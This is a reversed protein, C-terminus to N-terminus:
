PNGTGNQGTNNSGHQLAARISKVLDGIQAPKTLFGFAGAELAMATMTSNGHATLFIIPLRIRRLNIEAQLDLGNMAPLKYDLLLCGPKGYCDCKLFEEASVFAQCDLGLTEIVMELGDRVAADDDVIYVCPPTSTNNLTRSTNDYKSTVGGNKKSNNKTASAANRGSNWGYYVHGDKSPQCPKLGLGTSNLVSMLGLQETPVNIPMVATNKISTMWSVRTRGNEETHTETHEGFKIRQKYGFREIKRVNGYLLWNDSRKVQEDDVIAQFFM